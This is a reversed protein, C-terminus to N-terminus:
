LNKAEKESLLNGAAGRVPDPQVAYNGCGRVDDTDPLGEYEGPKDKAEGELPEKHSYSYKMKGAM